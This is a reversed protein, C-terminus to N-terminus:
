ERDGGKLLKAWAMEPVLFDMCSALMVTYRLDGVGPPLDREILRPFGQRVHFLHSARVHYHPENYLDAHVDLYGSEILLDEFSERVAQVGLLGRVEGILESLSVGTTGADLSLHFLALLPVHSDDLQRDSTIELKIHQKAVTTKVEVSAAPLQFDHPIRNPGKWAGVAEQAGVVPILYSKLFWIEGFLGRQAEQGLGDPANRDLFRQWREIRGM